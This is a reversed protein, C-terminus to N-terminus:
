QDETIPFAAPQYSANQAVAVNPINKLRDQDYTTDVLVPNGIQREKERGHGQLRKWM